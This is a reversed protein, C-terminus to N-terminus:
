LKKFVIDNKETQIIKNFLEKLYPYEEPMYVSKNFETVHSFTFTNAQGDFSTLFKGGQNPLALGVNKPPNEVVYQAPLHMTLIYRTDSPMGWDVPYSREAMKYPNTTVMDFMFPNFVIRDTGTSLSSAPSIEVEYTEKVPMDLSDVNAIDSKLIKMKHANENLSEVYEDVTNFKKIAKRKLYGEYGSSFHTVTGKIKGNDMLTLNLTFTSNKRQATNLDIWVSPKDFSMVRGQDNLCKLPLMGFPLLPDTADLLYYKDGINVRAIVYNFDNIVPYLKNILGNERTSLLVADAHLGAANLSAVLSLNIDAVSGTHSDFAKRIGDLSSFGIFDNWKYWKQLFAYVAKAKELEGAKGQIAPAIREKMLEKRKIQGGFSEDSKLQYDIDKWEKAIKTPSGTRLDKEEVLEFYIASKFNKPSTMDDEEIFAPVDVMSYVMHSCSAKAGYYSFCDPELESSNKTLKLRGRLSANYLWFGPIYVDYESNLKPIDSQFEWTHFTSIYPSIVEYSVEIIAGAQVAPM